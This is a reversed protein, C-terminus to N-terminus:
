SDPELLMHTRTCLHQSFSQFAFGDSLENQLEFLRSRFEPPLLSSEAITEEYHIPCIIKGAACRTRLVSLLLASAPENKCMSSLFCQDISIRKKGMADALTRWDM